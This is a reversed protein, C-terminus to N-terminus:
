ISVSEVNSAKWQHIGECLTLLLSSQHQLNFLCNFFFVNSNGTIRFVDVNMHRWQGIGYLRKNVRDTKELIEVTPAMCITVKKRTGIRSQETSVHIHQARCRTIMSRTWVDLSSIMFLVKPLLRWHFNFGFESMKMLPFTISFRCFTRQLIQRPRPTNITKKLYKITVRDTVMTSTCVVFINAHCM